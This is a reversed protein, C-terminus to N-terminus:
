EVTIEFDTRLYDKYDDIFGSITEKSVTEYPIVFKAETRESTESPRRVGRENIRHEAGDGDYYLAQTEEGILTHVAALASQRLQKMKSDLPVAADSEIVLEDNDLTIEIHDVEEAAEFWNLAERVGSEPESYVQQALYADM